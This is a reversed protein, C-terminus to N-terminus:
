VGGFKIIGTNYYITVFLDFPKRINGITFVSLLLVIIALRILAYTSNIRKDKPQQTDHQNLDTSEKKYVRKARIVIKDDAM